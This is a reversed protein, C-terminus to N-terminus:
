SEFQSINETTKNYEMQKCTVVLEDGSIFIIQIEMYNEIEISANTRSFFNNKKLKPIISHNESSILMVSYIRPSAGWFDCSTMEFGIVDTFDITYTHDKYTSLLLSLKYDLRNFSLDLLVDDHIYIEKTNIITANSKNIIM